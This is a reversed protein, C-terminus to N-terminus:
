QATVQYTAAFKSPPIRGLASHPREDNYFNRWREIEVQAEKLTHFWERKLLEMRLKGNFSEIFGNQWPSGLDIYSPGVSQSALWCKIEGAVFESGNDSRLYAPKRGTKRMVEWLIGIVAQSNIAHSVHITLCERTFEDLVNLLRYPRGSKLTDHMFDYTWVHDPREARNPRPNESPVIKKRSKKPKTCTFGHMEWLRRIRRESVKLLGGIQRYGFEPCVRMAEKIQEMLQEDRLPQKADYQAVRRTVGSRKCATRQSMGASRLHAIM